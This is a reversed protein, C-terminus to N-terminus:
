MSAECEAVKRYYFEDTLLWDEYLAKLQRLRGAVQRKTFKSKEESNGTSEAKREPKPRPPPLAHKPPPLLSPNFVNVTLKQAPVLHRWLFAQMRDEAPVAEHTVKRGDIAAQGKISLTVPTDTKNLDTKLAFKVSDKDKPLVVKPSSFGEPPDALSLRIDGDFGDKRLAYVTGKGWGKSRLVGGSPVVRLEFDPRPPGIRLRYGYERGGHRATDGLHIYYTGDAPLEVMFYSDAHHTNLGVGVDSHDDNLALLKGNEDTLKLISDLPSNLRRAHVEAVLTEGARGEVRFVDWDDTQDIRGNVIVPLQLKQANKPENNSEQDFCEPLNDLAFPMPNSVLKGKTATVHYIGPAADYPPPTLKARQINWGDMEIQPVEGSRGGLPFISTIFPVEGITIRYVFDERGRYIADQIVLVYEGNKPVKFFITPDPNFRYDDNFAVENGDSDYLRIVPQFWGPVADAVYPILERGKVSIVLRQGMRAKFRYRNVEGSAIQGNMTCPLSVREEVEEDPRNRLAQYEKGLVQFDCTRMPKRAVEPQQGVYFVLPNTVGRQTLLRIERAGPEADPEIEVEVYAIEALAACAPRRVWEGIRKQIRAILEQKEKSLPKTENNGKARKGWANKANYKAKNKSNVNKARAKKGQANKGRKAKPVDRRLEKLQERLLTMEQNNLKRNYETLKASVGEGSVVAGHVGNLRQGGLKVQVTTGQQGGAPYVYGIYPQAQGRASSDMAALAILGFIPFWLLRCM